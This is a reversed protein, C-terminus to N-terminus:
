DIMEHMTYGFNLLFNNNIVYIVIKTRIDFYLPASYSSKSSSARLVSSM